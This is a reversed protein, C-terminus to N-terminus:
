RFHASQLREKTEEALSKKVLPKKKSCAAITPTAGTTNKLPITSSSSEQHKVIASQLRKLNKLATKNKQQPKKIAQNAM